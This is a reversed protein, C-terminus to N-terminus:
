GASVVSEPEYALNPALWREIAPLPLSKRRHYDIVQDRGIKGVAFYHADPHGFYFGSVSAAPMMAFNETLEM